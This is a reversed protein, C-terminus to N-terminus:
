SRTQQWGFASEQSDAIPQTIWSRANRQWDKGMRAAGHLALGLRAWGHGAPGLGAANKRSSADACEGFASVNGGNEKEQTPTGESVTM